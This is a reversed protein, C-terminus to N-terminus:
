FLGGVCSSLDFFMFALAKEQPTVDARDLLEDPFPTARQGSGGSSTCTPSCSRAAAHRRTPKTRRRSSSTRRYQNSGSPWYVWREAKTNDVATCPTSATQHDPDPRADTSGVVNLMWTAFSTGKPNNTEDISTPRGNTPTTDHRQQELDRHGAVCGADSQRRRAHEGEIWINHWHSMFVRGGLDAYAKLADM